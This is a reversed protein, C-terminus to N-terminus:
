EKLDGFLLSQTLVRRPDHTEGESFVIWSIVRDSVVPLHFPLDSNQCDRRYPAERNPVWQQDM